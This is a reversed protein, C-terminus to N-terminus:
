RYPYQQGEAGRKVIRQMLFLRAQEKSTGAVSRARIHSRGRLEAYGDHQHREQHGLDNSRDLGVDKPRDRGRGWRYGMNNRKRGRGFPKM